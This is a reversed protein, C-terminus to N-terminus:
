EITFGYLNISKKGIDIYKKRNPDKQIELEEISDDLKDIETNISNHLKERYEEIYDNLSIIKQEISINKKNGDFIKNYLDVMYKYAKEYTERDENIVKRLDGLEGGGKFRKTRNQRIRMKTSRNERKDKTVQHIKHNKETM